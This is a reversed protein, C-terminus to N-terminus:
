KTPYELFEDHIDVTARKGIADFNAKLWQQAAARGDDRLATLFGWDTEFKSAVSYNKLEKDARIAHLRIEKYMKKYKDKLM